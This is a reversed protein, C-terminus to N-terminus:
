PEYLRSDGWVRETFPEVIRCVEPLILNYKFVSFATHQTGLQGIWRHTASRTSVQLTNTPAEVSVTPCRFWIVGLIIYQWM